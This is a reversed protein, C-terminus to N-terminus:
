PAPTLLFARQTDDLATIQGGDNISLADYYRGVAAPAGGGRWVTARQTALYHSEGVVDGRANIASASSDTGAVGLDPSLETLRKVAGGVWEVAHVHGDAADSTGVIVGSANVAVARTRTGGPLAPLLTSQHNQWVFARTSALGPSSATGVVTGADNIDFPRAQGLGATDINDLPFPAYQGSADKQWLVARLQGTDTAVFGGVIVGPGNVAIAVAGAQDTPAPLLTLAGGQLVFADYHSDTPRFAGVAVGSDNIDAVSGEPHPQGPYPSPPSTFAGGTYIRPYTHFGDAEVAAIQGANNLRLSSFAFGGTPTLAQSSFTPTTGGGGGTTPPTVPASGGGGGGCGASLLAGILLSAGLGWRPADTPRKPTKRM